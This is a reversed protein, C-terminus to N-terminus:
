KVNKAIGNREYPTYLSSDCDIVFSNRNIVSTVKFSSGNVSQGEKTHMVVVEKINVIDGEQLNHAVGTLLKVKTGLSSDEESKPNMQQIM